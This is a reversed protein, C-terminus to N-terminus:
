GAARRTALEAVVATLGSVAMVSPWAGIRKALPHSGGMAGAYIGVLGVTPGPGLTKWWRRACWAGATAFVAGGVERRKTTRAVAFGAVLGTVAVLSPRVLASPSM